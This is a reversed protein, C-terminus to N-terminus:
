KFKLKFMNWKHKLNHFQWNIDFKKNDQHYPPLDIKCHLMPGKTKSTKNNRKFFRIDIITESKDAQHVYLNIDYIEQFIEKIKNVGEEFTITDIVKQKPSNLPYLPIEMKIETVIYKVNSSLNNFCLEKAIEFLKAESQKLNSELDTETITM